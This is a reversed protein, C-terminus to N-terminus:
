PRSCAAVPGRASAAPGAPPRARGAAPRPRAKRRCRRIHKHTQDEADQADVHMGLAEHLRQQALQHAPEVRLLGQVRRADADASAQRVFPVDVVHGDVDLLANGVLGDLAQARPAVRDLDDTAHAPGQEAAALDDPPGDVFDLTRAHPRSPAIQPPITGRIWRSPCSFIHMYLYIYLSPSLISHSYRPLDSLLLLFLKSLFLILPIPVDAGGIM